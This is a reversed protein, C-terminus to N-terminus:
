KWDDDKSLEVGQTETGGAARETTEKMKTKAVAFGAKVEVDADRGQTVSYDSVATYYPEYQLLSGTTGSEAQALVDSVDKVKAQVGRKFYLQMGLMAAAVVSFLIAYETLSQGSRIRTSTM